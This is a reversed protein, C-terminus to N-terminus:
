IFVGLFTIYTYYRLQLINLLQNLAIGELLQLEMYGCARPQCFLFYLLFLCVIDLGIFYIVMKILAVFVSQTRASM